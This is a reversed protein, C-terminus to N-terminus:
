LGIRLGVGVPLLTAVTGSFGTTRDLMQQYALRFEATLNRSVVLDLGASLTWFVNTHYVLEGEADSRLRYGGLGAAIVPSLRASPQLSYELRTYAEVLATSLTPGGLTDAQLSGFVAAVAATIKRGLARRVFAEAAPGPSSNVTPRLEWSYDFGVYSARLGVAWLSGIPLRVTVPVQARVREAEVTLETVGDGRYEVVALASDGGMTVSAVRAVREAGSVVRVASVAARNGFADVGTVVLTVAARANSELRTVPSGGRTVALESPPGGVGTVAARAGLAGLRAVVDV